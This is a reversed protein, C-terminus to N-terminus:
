YSIYIEINEHMFCYDFKVSTVELWYEWSLNYYFYRRNYLNYDFKRIIKNNKDYITIIGWTKINEELWNLVQELTTGNINDYHGFGNGMDSKQPIDIIRKM